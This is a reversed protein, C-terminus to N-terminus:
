GAPARRYTSAVQLPVAMPDKVQLLVKLTNGTRDLSLQQTHVARNTFKARIVLAGGSWRAGITATGNSDMRTATQELTYNRAPMTDGRLALTDGHLEIHLQAAPRFAEELRQRTRDTAELPVDDPSGAIREVDDMMRPRRRRDREKKQSAGIYGNVQTDFNDSAAADLVWDGSIRVDAAPAAAAIAVGAACVIAVCLRARRQVSVTSM